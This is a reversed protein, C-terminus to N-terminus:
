IKPVVVMMPQGQMLFVPTGDPNKQDLKIINVVTQKAKIKTGDELVYESWPEKSNLIEMSEGITEYFKGDQTPAMVKIKDSM